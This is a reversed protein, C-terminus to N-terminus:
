VPPKFEGPPKKPRPRACNERTLIANTGLDVFIVAISAFAFASSYRGFNEAGLYRALLLIFATSALRVGAEGM